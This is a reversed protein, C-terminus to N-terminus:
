WTSSSPLHDEAREARSTIRPLRKITCVMAWLSFAKPLQKSRQATRSAEKCELRPVVQKGLASATVEGGMQSVIPLVKAYLLECFVFDSPYARWAGIVLGPCFCGSVLPTSTGGSSLIPDGTGGRKCYSTLGCGGRDLTQLFFLDLDFNGPWHSFVHMCVDQACLVIICALNGHVSFYRCGSLTFHIM